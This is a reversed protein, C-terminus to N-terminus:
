AFDSFFLPIESGHSARSDFFLCWFYHFALRMRRRCHGASLLFWYFPASRCHCYVLHLVQLLLFHHPTLALALPLHHRLSSQLPPSRYLLLFLRLILDDFFFLLQSRLQDLFVLTCFSFRQKLPFHIRIKENLSFSIFNFDFLRLFWALIITWQFHCFFIGFLSGREYFLLWFLLTPAFERLKHLLFLRFFLLYLLLLLFIEDDHGTLM